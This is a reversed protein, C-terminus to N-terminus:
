RAVTEYCNIVFASSNKLKALPARLPRSYYQVHSSFFPVITACSRAFRLVLSILAGCLKLTNSLVVWFFSM